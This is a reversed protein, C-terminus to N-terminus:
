MVGDPDGVDQANFAIASGDPLRAHRDFVVVTHDGSPAKGADQGHEIRFSLGAESLQRSVFDLDTERYQGRLRFSRLPEVLEYRWHAEPYDGFVRECIGEADLDVFYLCNRRLKLLALWSEMTLRYRTFEGDSEAYAAHTV